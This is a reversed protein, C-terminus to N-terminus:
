ELHYQALDPTPTNVLLILKAIFLIKCVMIHPAKRSKTANTCNLFRSFCGHLLELIDYMGIHITFACLIRFSILFLYFLLGTQDALKM